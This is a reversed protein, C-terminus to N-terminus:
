SRDGVRRVAREDVDARVVEDDLFGADGALHQGDPRGVVGDDHEEVGAAVRAAVERQHAFRISCKMLRTPSRGIAIPVNPV